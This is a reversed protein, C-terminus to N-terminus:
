AGAPPGAEPSRGMERAHAKCYRAWPKIELRARSIPRGDVPCRGYEGRRIREIADDIERVLNLEIEELRRDMTDTREDTAADAQHTPLDSSAGGPAPAGTEKELNSVDGVIEHRRAILKEHYQEIEERTLAHEESM